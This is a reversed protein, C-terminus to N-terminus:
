GLLTTARAPKPAPEPKPAPKAAPKPAPEPKSPAAAAPAREIDRLWATHAGTGKHAYPQTGCEDCRYGLTGRENELVVVRGPGGDGNLCGHTLCKMYGFKSKQMLIV